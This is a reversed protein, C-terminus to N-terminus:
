GSMVTYSPVPLWHFDVVADKVSWDPVGLHGSLGVFILM